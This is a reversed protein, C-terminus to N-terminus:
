MELLFSHLHSDDQNVAFAQIAVLHSSLNERKDNSVQGSVANITEM